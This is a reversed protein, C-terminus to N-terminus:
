RFIDYISKKKCVAVVHDSALVNEAILLRELYCILRLLPLDEKRFNGIIDQLLGHLITGGYDVREVIRFYRNLIPM